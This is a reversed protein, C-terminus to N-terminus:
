GAEGGKGLEGKRAMWGVVEPLIGEGLLNQSEPPPSPPLPTTHTHYNSTVMAVPRGPSTPPDVKPKSCLVSGKRFLKFGGKRPRPEPLPTNM